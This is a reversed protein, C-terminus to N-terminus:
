SFGHLQAAAALFSASTPTGYTHTSDRCRWRGSHHSHLLVVGLAGTRKCYSIVRTSVNYCQERSNGPNSQASVSFFNGATTCRGWWPM